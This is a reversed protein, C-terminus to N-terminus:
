TTERVPEKREGSRASARKRTRSRSTGSPHTRRASDKRVYRFGADTGLKQSYGLQINLFGCAELYRANQLPGADVADFGIDGAMELVMKKADEDDSAAFVTLPEGHVGGESMTQAFVTNFCKVVKAGNTWEKVREANSQDMDGAYGGEPGMANSVEIIVKGGLDGCESVADRLASAPVALIVVDAAQAIRRVADPENGV